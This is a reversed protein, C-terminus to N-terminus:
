GTVRAMWYELKPDSFMGLWVPIYFILTCASVMSSTSILSVKMMKMVTAKLKVVDNKGVAYNIQTRSYINFGAILSYMILDINVALGYSAIQSASNTWAIIFLISDWVFYSPFEMMSLKFSYSFLWKLGKKFNESSTTKESDLKRYM